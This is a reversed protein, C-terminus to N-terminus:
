MSGMEGDVDNPLAFLTGNLPMNIEERLPVDVVSCKALGSVCLDEGNWMLILFLSFFAKSPWKEASNGTGSGCLTTTIIQQAQQSVHQFKLLSSEQGLLIWGKSRRLFGDAITKGNRNM